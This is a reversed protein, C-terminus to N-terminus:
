VAFMDGRRVCVGEAVVIGEAEDERGKVFGEEEVESGIVFEDM